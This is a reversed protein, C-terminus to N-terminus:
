LEARKADRAFWAAAVLSCLLQLPVGLVVMVIARQDIDAVALLPAVAAGVNRTGLGLGLVSRQAQALGRPFAYGATTLLGLFLLQTGIAFSGFTSAFGRGYMVVCLALLGIAAIGTVRKVRPRIAAAFGPATRFLVLGALLPLLVMVILPRAITWADVALGPVLLPVGAPMLILTGVASLLLMAPVYGIDGRARGVMMPLFPACPAMALLLLGAAYPEELPIIRTLVWAVLPGLIFAFLVGYALFRPNRLGKLAETVSLGLGMELLSGAMFILLLVKLALALAGDMGDMPTLIAQCAASRGNGFRRARM